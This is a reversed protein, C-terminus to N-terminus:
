SQQHHAAMITLLPFRGGPREFPRAYEIRFGSEQIVRELDCQIWEQVSCNHNLGSINATVWDTKPGRHLAIMMKG